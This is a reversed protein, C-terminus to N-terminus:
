NQELLNPVKMSNQLTAKLFQSDLM